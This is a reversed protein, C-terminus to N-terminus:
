PHLQIPPHTAYRDLEECRARFQPLSQSAPQDGGVYKVGKNWPMKGVADIANDAYITDGNFVSLSAPPRTPPRAPPRASSLLSFSCSSTLSASPSLVRYLSLSLSLFLSVSLSACVRARVCASRSCFSFSGFLPAPAPAARNKLKLFHSSPLCLTFRPPFFGWFFVLAAPSPALRWKIPKTCKSFFDADHREM